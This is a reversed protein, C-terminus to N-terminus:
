DFVESLKEMFMTWAAISLLCVCVCLMVVLVSDLRRALSRVFNGVSRRLDNRGATLIGSVAVAGDGDLCSVTAEATGVM